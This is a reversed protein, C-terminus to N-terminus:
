SSSRTKSGLFFPFFFDFALAVGFALALVVGFALAVGFDLLLPPSLKITGALVNKCGTYVRLGVLVGILVGTLVGVLVGVLVGITFNVGVGGGKM